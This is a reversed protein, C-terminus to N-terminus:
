IYKRMKESSHKALLSDASNKLHFPMGKRRVQRSGAKARAGVCPISNKWYGKLQKVIKALIEGLDNEARRVTL